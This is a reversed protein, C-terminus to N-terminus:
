TFWYNSIGYNVSEYRSRWPKFGSLSVPNTNSPFETLSIVHNDHRWRKRFTGNEFHKGDVRFRFSPKKLNRLNTFRKRFAVREQHILTCTSPLGLRLFLPQTKLNRRHLPSAAQFHSFDVRCDNTPLFKEDRWMKEFCAESLFITEWRITTGKLTITVTNLFNNEM